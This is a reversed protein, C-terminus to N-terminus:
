NFSYTSLFIDDSEIANNLMIIKNEAVQFDSNQTLLQGNRFLMLSSVPVPTNEISLGLSGSISVFSAAENIAFRKVAVEKSYMALLVDGALPVFESITVVNGVVSYDSVNTLLQGNLWIMVAAASKPTNELYFTSNIGNIDGTLSENLVLETIVASSEGALSRNQSSFEVLDADAIGDRYWYKHSVNAIILRVEMSQFRIAATIAANAIAIADQATAASYPGSWADVPVPNVPQIGFPLQLGSTLSM